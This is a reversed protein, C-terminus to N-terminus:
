KPIKLAYFFGLGKFGLRSIKLAAYFFGLGKFRLRSIKLASFLFGSTLVSGMGGTCSGHRLIAGSIRGNQPTMRQDEVCSETCIGQHGRKGIFVWHQASKWPPSNKPYNKKGM